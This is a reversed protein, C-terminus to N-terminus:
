RRIGLLEDVKIVAQPADPAWGDSGISGAFEQTTPGGGIIVKINNRLGMDNLYDIVERQNNITTVMLASLAVIDAKEDRAKKVIDMTPVDKGMDIVEYGSCTLLLAVLNKGTDHMDGRVTAIVVKKKTASANQPLHPTIMGILKKTLAGAMTLEALFYQGENYLAGVKQLGPVVGENIIRLPEVGQDLALTVLQEAEEEIAEVAKTIKVLVDEKTM